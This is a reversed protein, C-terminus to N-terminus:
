AADALSTDLLVEREGDAYVATFVGSEIVLASPRGGYHSTLMGTDILFVRGDFRVEIRGSARPTHANVMEDVGIGDLIGHMEEGRESEDWEASGRFWLPGHPAFLFWDDVGSLADLKPDPPDVRMSAAVLSNLGATSPVMGEDLMYRRLEDYTAIENRVKANIEEVSLGELEPSIGGHVFLVGDISAVTPLTRLWAGYQGEPGLADLYEILGPPHASMWRQRLENPFPPVQGNSGRSHAQWYVRFERLEQRRLKDSRKDAFEAYVEPNVDRLYGTLNMTEHNGLLVIIEGGAAAAEEQLRMLLDMTERVELGRDLLDGTQVLTTTGGTWRLEQDILGTEQLIAVLGDYSGHVDGVAVIRGDDAGAVAPFCLSLAAVVALLRVRNRRLVM